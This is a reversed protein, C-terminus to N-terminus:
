TIYLASVISILSDVIREKALYRAGFYGSLKGALDGSASQHHQPPFIPYLHPHQPRQQHLPLVHQFWYGPRRTPYISSLEVTTMGSLTFTTITPHLKYFQQIHSTPNIWQIVLVKNSVMWTILNEVYIFTFPMTNNLININKYSM